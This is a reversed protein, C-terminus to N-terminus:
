ESMGLSSCNRKPMVGANIRRETPMSFGSSRMASRSWASFRQRDPRSRDERFFANWGLILNSSRRRRAPKGRIRYGSREEKRRRSASCLTEDTASPSKSLAREDGMLGVYVHFSTRNISATFSRSAFAQNRPGSQATAALLRRRIEQSPERDGPSCTRRPFAPPPPACYQPHWRRSARLPSPPRVHSGRASFRGVCRRIYDVSRATRMRRALSTAGSACNLVANMLPWDAVADSSDKM